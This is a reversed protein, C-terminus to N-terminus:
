WRAHGYAIMHHRAKQGDWTLQWMVTHMKTQGLDGAVNARIYIYIYIYINM